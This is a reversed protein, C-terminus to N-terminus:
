LQQQLWALLRQVAPNDNAQPWVLYYDIGEPRWADALAVLRGAALMDRVLLSKVLAIGFGQEAARLLLGCRQVASVTERVGGHGAGPVLRAM